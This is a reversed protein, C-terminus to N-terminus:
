IVVMSVVKIDLDFYLKILEENKRLRKKIINYCIKYILAM